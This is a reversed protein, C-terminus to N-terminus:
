ATSADAFLNLRTATQRCMQALEEREDTSRGAVDRKFADETIKSINPCAMRLRWVPGAAKKPKGSQEGDDSRETDEIAFERAVKIAAAENAAANVAKALQDVNTSTL